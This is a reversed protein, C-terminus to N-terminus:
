KGYQPNPFYDFVQYWIDLLLHSYDMCSADKKAELCKQAAPKFKSYDMENMLQVAVENWVVKPVFLRYQYDRNHTDEIPYHSLEEFRDQLNKLHSEVRARVMVIDKNKEDCSLSLFGYKTFLWM